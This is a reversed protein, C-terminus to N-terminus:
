ASFPPLVTVDGQDGSSTAAPPPPPHAAPECDRTAAEASTTGARLAAAYASLGGTAPCIPDAPLSM